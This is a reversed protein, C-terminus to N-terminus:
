RERHDSKEPWTLTVVRRRKRIFFIAGGLLLALSIMGVIHGDFFNMFSAMLKLGSIGEGLEGADAGPRLTHHAGAVACTNHLLVSSTTEPDPRYNEIRWEGFVHIAYFFVMSVLVGMAISRSLILGKSATIAPM